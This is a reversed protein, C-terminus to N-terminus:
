DKMPCYETFKAGKGGDGSSLVGLSGVTNRSNDSWSRATLGSCGMRYQQEGRQLQDQRHRHIHIEVVEGSM